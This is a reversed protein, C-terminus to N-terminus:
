QLVLVCALLGVQNAQFHITRTLKGAEALDYGIEVLTAM